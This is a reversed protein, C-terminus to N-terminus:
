KGHLPWFIPDYAAASTLMDGVVGPDELARLVQYAHVYLVYLVFLVDVSVNNVLRVLIKMM